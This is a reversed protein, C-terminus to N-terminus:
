KKNNYKKIINDDICSNENEFSCYCALWKAFEEILEGRYLKKRESLSVFTKEGKYADLLVNFIENIILETYNRFTDFKKNLYIYDTNFKKITNMQEFIQDSLRIGTELSSNDCIDNIMNHIIVTTNIADKDNTKTMEELIEIEKSSIIGLRIADEIDRGLYAIKDSIKVICGEWTASQYQGKNVFNKLDIIADRPRLGNEDKEGCHSIIGDRVAYTLNLNRKVKYDDELLEVDEVFHLGNKEHWFDESLCKNSLKRLIEEGHHGFPAHGLDHGISIAKTLETNLGLRAALTHSVSEVHMVHEMRTCVHDDDVNMYVQTKHKLRRFALCHLIRTYDREFESRVDGERTYLAGERKILMDWNKNEPKAAVAAFKKENEM